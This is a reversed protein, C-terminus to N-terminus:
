KANPQIPIGGTAVLGIGWEGAAPVVVSCGICIGDPENLHCVIAVSVGVVICVVDDPGAKAPRTLRQPGLSPTRGPGAAIAVFPNGGKLNDAIGLRGVYIQRRGGDRN